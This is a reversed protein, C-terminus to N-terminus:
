WFGGGGSYDEYTSTSPSSGYTQYTGTAGSGSNGSMWGGALKNLSNAWANTGAMQGAAQANAAGIMNNGAIQAYNMGQAGVQSVAAQSPNIIGMLRNYTNGQDNTFRNYANGYENSAYDQAYRQLAKLAAGSDNGGRALLQNNIGKLGQDLRFQYGPEKVFEDNSFRRTLFGYEPSNKQSNYYDLQRKYEEDTAKDLGYVDVAGPANKFIYGGLFRGDEDPIAENSWVRQLTEPMTYRAMLDNRISTRDPMNTMDGLGMLNMLKNLSADRAKILPANDQRLANFQDRSLNNANRASEAQRNAASEAADAQMSSGIIAAGAAVAAGWPM